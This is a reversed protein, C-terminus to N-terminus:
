HIGELSDYWICFTRGTNDSLIFDANDTHAKSKPTWDGLVVHMDSYCIAGMRWLEDELEDMVLWQIFLTRM